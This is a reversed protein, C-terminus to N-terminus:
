MDLQDQRLYQNAYTNVLESKIFLEVIDQDLHNDKVMLGLVKIAQSLSMPKKYPRDPASLAEFIDSVAMIRSQLNIQDAKLNLPYGSGDLKEHHGSAIKPVNAM